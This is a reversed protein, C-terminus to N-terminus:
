IGRLCEEQFLQTSFLHVLNQELGAGHCRVALFFLVDSVYKVIRKDVLPEDKDIAITCVVNLLDKVRFDEIRTQWPSERM